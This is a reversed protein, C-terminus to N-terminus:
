FGAPITCGRTAISMMKGSAKDAITYIKTSDSLTFKRVDYKPNLLMYGVYEFYCIKAEQAAIDQAIRALDYLPSRIASTFTTFTQTTGAKTIRVTSAIRAEVKGPQLIALVTPSTMSVEYGRDELETKLQSFCTTIKPTIEREIEMRLASLYIPYQSVCPEYHNITKCLYPVKADDYITYDTPNVFGGQSLMIGTITDLNNRACTGVFQVPDFQASGSVTPGQERWILTILIGGAVIIIAVIVFMTIQGRKNTIKQGM